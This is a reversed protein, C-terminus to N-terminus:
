SSRRLRRAIDDTQKTPGVVGMGEPAVGESRGDPERLDPSQFGPIAVVFQSPGQAIYALNGGVGQVPEWVLKWNPLHDKVACEVDICYAMAALTMAERAQERKLDQGLVDVM